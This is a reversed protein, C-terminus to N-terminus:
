IESSICYELDRLCFIKINSIEKNDVVIIFQNHLFELLEEESNLKCFEREKFNMKRGFTSGEQAFFIQVNELKRDPQINAEFSPWETQELTELNIDQLMFNVKSTTKKESFIEEKRPTIEISM